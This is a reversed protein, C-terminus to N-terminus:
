QEEESLMGLLLDVTRLASELTDGVILRAAFPLPGERTLEAQGLASAIETSEALKLAPQVLAPDALLAANDKLLSLEPDLAIIRSMLDALGQLEAQDEELLTSLNGLVTWTANHNLLVLALPELRDLTGGAELAEALLGWAAEMTLPAAGTPCTDTPLEEAALLVPVLDTVDDVLASSALDRLAEEVPPVAGRAYAVSLLGVLEDVRDQSPSDRAFADLLELMVVVLDAAEPDSLRNMSELDDILQDSLLPCVGSDVVTDMISQTLGWGLAGGLLNLADAITEPSQTSLTRLIEVSLNDINVDVLSFGLVSVSCQLPQDATHLMRLLSLLASDEGPSLSGGNVDVQALYLLQVPLPDLHGGAEADELASLLRDRLADDALITGLDPRLAELLNLGDASETLLTADVLDRLSDGSAGTWVDNGPSRSLAIAQGLDPLLDDSLKALAPDDSRNLGVLLCVGDDFTQSDIAGALEDTLGSGEDLLVSATQAVLPLAPRILGRDLASASLSPETASLDTYPEGYLAEVLVHLTAGVLEPDEELLDLAFGALRFVDIDLEPLANVLTALEVGLPVGGRSTADMADVIGSLPDFNHNQNLCDFLSHLEDTSEESLGDGLQVQWCPGASSLQDTWPAPEASDTCGALLLFATLM